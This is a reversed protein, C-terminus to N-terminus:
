YDEQERQERHRQKEQQKEYHKDHKDHKDHLNSQPSPLLKQLDRLIDIKGQTKARRSYDKVFEAFHDDIGIEEFFDLLKDQTVQSLDTFRMDGEVIQSPHERVSKVPPPRSLTDITLRSQESSCNFCVAEEESQNPKKLIIRFPPEDTPEEDVNYDEPEQDEEVDEPETDIHDDDTREEGQGEQNEYESIDSTFNENQYSDKPHWRVLVELDGQIVKKMVIDGDKSESLSFRTEKLFRQCEEHNSNLEQDEKANKIEVDLVKFYDVQKKAPQVKALGKEKEKPLPDYDKKSSYTRVQNSIVSSAPIVRFRLFPSASRSLSVVSRMMV